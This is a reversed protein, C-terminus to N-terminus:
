YAIGIDPDGGGLLVLGALQLGQTAKHWLLADKHVLLRPLVEVPGLVPPHDPPHFFVIQKIDFADVTQPSVIPLNQLLPPVEGPLLPHIDHHQIHWQQVGPPALVQHAGKLSM